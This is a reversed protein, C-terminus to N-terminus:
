SKLSLADATYRKGLSVYSCIQLIAVDIDIVNSLCLQLCLMYLLAEEAITRRQYCSQFLSLSFVAFIRRQHTVSIRPVRLQVLGSTKDFVVILSM